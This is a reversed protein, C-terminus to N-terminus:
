QVIDLFVKKNDELSAAAKIVTRIAKAIKGKKGIVRGMDELAVHLEIFVIQREERRTVSVAEPNLVLAKALLEVLEKM